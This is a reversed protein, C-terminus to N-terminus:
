IVNFILMDLANEWFGDNSMGRDKEEGARIVTKLVQVLNDTESGKAHTAEYELFNFFNNEHSGVVLLDNLRGATRCYDEWIEREDPKVTLVLGGFGAELFKLALTRGSGSTKGSGIGGFIQVGEVANRITWAVNENSGTRTLNFIPTDLDFNILGTM